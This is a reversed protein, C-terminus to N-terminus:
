PLGALRGATVVQEHEVEIVAGMSFLHGALQCREAM